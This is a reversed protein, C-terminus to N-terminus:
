LSAGVFAADAHSKLQNGITKRKCVLDPHHADADLPRTSVRDKRGM